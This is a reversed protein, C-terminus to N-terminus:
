KSATSFAASCSGPSIARIDAIRAEEGNGLTDVARALVDWAAMDLGPAAIMSLGQYGIFHLSRRAARYFEAPAVRQGTLMEGLDHLAPVLYKMAQPLYPELYARGTVGEETELDILILPWVAITAIRAIIPRKLPLLVPRARLSRLTLTELKM